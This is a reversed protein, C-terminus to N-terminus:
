EKAEYTQSTFFETLLLNRTIECGPRLKQAEFFDHRAEIFHNQRLYLKGRSILAQWLDPNLNLALNYDNMASDTQFLKEHVHGRTCPFLSQDPFKAMLETLKLSAPAYNQQNILQIAELFAPEKPLAQSSFSRTTLMHVVEHIREIGDTSTAKPLIKGYKICRNMCNAELANTPCFNFEFCAAGVIVSIFRDQSTLLKLLAQVAHDTDDIQHFAQVLQQVSKMGNENGNLGFPPWFMARLLPTAAKTIEAENQFEYKLYDQILWEIACRIHDPMDHIDAHKTQAWPQNKLIVALGYWPTAALNFVPASTWYKGSLSPFPNDPAILKQFDQFINQQYSPLNTVLTGMESVCLKLGMESYARKLISFLYEPMWSCLPQWKPNKRATTLIAEIAWLSAFSGNLSDSLGLRKELEERDPM